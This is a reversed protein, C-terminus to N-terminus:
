RIDIYFQGKKAMGILPSLFPISTAIAKPENADHTYALLLRLFTYTAVLFALGTVVSSVMGVSLSLSELKHPKIYSSINQATREAPPRSARSVITLSRRLCRHRPCRRRLMQPTADAAYADAADPNLPVSFFCQGSAPIPYAYKSFCCYSRCPMLLFVTSQNM